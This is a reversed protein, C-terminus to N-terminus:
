TAEGPPKPRELRPRWSGALVLDRRPGEINIAVDLGRRVGGEESAAPSEPLAVPMYGTPDENGSPGGIATTVRHASRTQLAML